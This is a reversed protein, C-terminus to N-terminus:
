CSGGEKVERQERSAQVLRVPATSWATWAMVRRRISEVLEARSSGVANRAGVLKVSRAEADIAVLSTQLRTAIM